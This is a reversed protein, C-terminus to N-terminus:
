RLLSDQFIDKGTVKTTIQAVRGRGDVNAAFSDRRGRPDDRRPNKQLGIGANGSGDAAEHVSLASV